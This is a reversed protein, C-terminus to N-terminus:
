HYIEALHFTPGKTCILRSKGKNDKIACGYCIGLGCAMEKEYLAYAPMPSNFSNIIKNASEFMVEPGCLCIEDAWDEYNPLKDTVLGKTGESRDDTIVEVEIEQPLQKLPFLNHQDRAGMLLVVNKKLSILEDAFWVLPAIGIGGAILLFNDSKRNYPIPNGLPGIIKVKDGKQMKSILFTGQGITHYLISFTKEKTNVRHISMPRGLLPEFGDSPFIMVFQGPRSNSLPESQRIILLYTNGYMKSNEIIELKESNM